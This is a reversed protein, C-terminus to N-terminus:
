TRKRKMKDATLSRCNVETKETVENNDFRQHRVDDHREKM